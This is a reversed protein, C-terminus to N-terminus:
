HSQLVGDGGTRGWIVPILNKLPETLLDDNTVHNALIMEPGLDIAAARFEEITEAEIHLGVINSDSCFVGSDEYWVATIHFTM